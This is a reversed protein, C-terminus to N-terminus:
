YSPYVTQLTNEVVKVLRLWDNTTSTQRELVQNPRQLFDNIAKALAQVDGEPVVQVKNESAEPLGPKVKETVILPLGYGLAMGAVASQTGRVYPAVFVDAASFLLSVDENPIYRDDVRVHTSINLREIQKLYAAKDDWFEGAIILHVDKGQQNVQSLAELLYKLGKYRRIIGFFLLILPKEPLALQKRAVEKPIKQQDFAEFVPMPCIEVEASPILQNLRDKERVTQVIFQEGQSLALKALWRDWPREEHPLVNHIVFIVCIKKRRLSRSIIAFPVAWFTTWWQIIVADPKLRRIRQVSQWWTGPHLYDLLYDAKVLLPKDSPDKDSKGPYLWSPYLRRFSIVDVEHNHRVLARTFFTTYHSIGGRYPYVPGIMVVKM